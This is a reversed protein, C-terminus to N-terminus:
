ETLSENLVDKIPFAMHWTGNYSNFNVSFLSIFYTSHSITFVIPFYSAFRSIPFTLSIILKLLVISSPRASFCHKLLFRLHHSFLGCLFLVNPLLITLAFASPYPTHCTQPIVLLGYLRSCLSGPSPTPLFSAKVKERLFTSHNWPQCCLKIHDSNNKLQHREIDHM